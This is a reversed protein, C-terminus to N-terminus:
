TVGPHNGSSARELSLVKLEVHQVETEKNLEALLPFIVFDDIYSQLDRFSSFVAGGLVYDVENFDRFASFFDDAKFEQSTLNDFLFLTLLSVHSPDARILATFFQELAPLCEFQPTGPTAFLKNKLIEQLITAKLPFPIVPNLVTDAFLELWITLYERDIDQHGIEELVLTFQPDLKKSSSSRDLIGMWFQELKQKKM